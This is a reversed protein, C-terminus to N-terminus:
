GAVHCDRPGGGSLCQALITCRLLGATRRDLRRRSAIGGRSVAEIRGATWRAVCRRGRDEAARTAVARRREPGRKARQRRGVTRGIEPLRLDIGPVLLPALLDHAVRRRRRSQCREAVASACRRGIRACRCSGCRATRGDDPDHQEDGHCHERQQPQCTASGRMAGGCTGNRADRAAGRCAETDALGDRKIRRWEHEGGADGLHLRWRAAPHYTDLRDPQQLVCSRLQM